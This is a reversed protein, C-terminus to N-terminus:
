WRSGGDNRIPADHAVQWAYPAQTNDARETAAAAADSRKGRRRLRHSWGSSHWPRVSPKGEMETVQQRLEAAALAEHLMDLLIRIKPASVAPSTHTKKGVVLEWQFAACVGENRTLTVRVCSDSSTWTQITTKTM